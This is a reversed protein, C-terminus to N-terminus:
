DFYDYWSKYCFTLCTFCLQSVLNSEQCELMEAGDLSIRKKELFERREFDKKEGRYFM